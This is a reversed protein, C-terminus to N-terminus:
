EGSMGVLASFTKKMIERYCYFGKGAEQEQSPLHEPKM